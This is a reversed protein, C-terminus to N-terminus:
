PKDADPEAGSRRGSSGAPPPPASPAPPLTLRMTTGGGPTPLVRVSGGHAAAIAAVIALGLGSGGSSRARSSDLRFFREFVRQAESEPIGPGHDRIELVVDGPAGQDGPRGIAGEAPSGSPTHRAVNGILNTVVQRLAGEDASVLTGAGEPGLDVLQVPRGPDLAQLDRVADGALVRLDVVTRELRRGEDLRALQLLDNVLRGMRIAEDEIRKMAPGVDEPEIAGMRYLEGYGRVTSLPTRLEHSADAVFQRMKAESAARVAFAREIQALMGNLSVALSGVETTHPEMPVRRTLDGAAFAHATAEVDGLPRLARRVAVSAALAGVVVIALGSLLLVRRIQGVTAEVRDLPLAIAVSGPVGTMSTAEYVVVRWTGFGEDSRVTFPRGQLREVEDEDDLDDLDPRGRQALLGPQIREVADGGYATFRLYYDSPLEAADRPRYSGAARALDAAGSVLQQDVQGVLYSRLLTTTAVGAVGLGSLLLATILVVLRVRLPLRRWRGPPRSPTEVAM